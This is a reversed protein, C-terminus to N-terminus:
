LSQLIYFLTLAHPACPIEYRKVTAYGSRKYISNERFNQAPQPFLFIGRPEGTRGRSDCAGPLIRAHSERTLHPERSTLYSLVTATSFRRLLSIKFGTKLNSPLTKSLFNTVQQWFQRNPTNDTFSIFFFKSYLTKNDWFTKMTKM